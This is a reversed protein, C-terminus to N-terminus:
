QTGGFAAAFILVIGVFLTISILAPVEEIFARIM